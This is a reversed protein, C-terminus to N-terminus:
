KKIFKRPDILQLDYDDVIKMMKQSHNLLEPLHDKSFGHFDSALSFKIEYEHGYELIPYFWKLHRMKERKDWFLHNLEIAVDYKKCMLVFRKMKERDKMYSISLPMGEQPHAFVDVDYRRFCEYLGKEWLRENLKLRPNHTWMWRHMKPFKKYLFGLPKPVTHHKSVLLYDFFDADIGRPLSLSGDPYIDVEGGNLISIEPYKKDYHRIAQKRYRLQRATFNYVMGGPIISGDKPHWYLSIPNVHDAFGVVEFGLDILIQIQRDINIQGDSFPTHMHLDFKHFM